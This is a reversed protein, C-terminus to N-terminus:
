GAAIAAVVPACLREWDARRLKVADTHTGAQMVLYEDQKLQVDMITKMGFLAGVPPEAGIECDPFLSTMESESALRVSPEGLVDAVRKLDVRKPAALVCMTYGAAGKVVVPKAVLYGSVHEANALEQATYALPHAHKEYGIGREQLFAELKM